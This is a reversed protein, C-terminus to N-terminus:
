LTKFSVYKVVGKSDKEIKDVKYGEAPNCYFVTKGTKRDYRYGADGGVGTVVRGTGVFGKELKIIRHPKAASSPNSASNEITYTTVKPALYNSSDENVTVTLTYSGEPISISEFIGKTTTNESLTTAGIKLTIGTADEGTIAKGVENQLAVHVPCLKTITVTKELTRVVKIESANQEVTYAAGDPPTVTLTYTGESINKAPEFSESSAKYTLPIADETGKQLEVTMNDAGTIENGFSDKLKIYVPYTKHLSCENVTEGDVTLNTWQTQSLASGHLVIKLNYDTGEALATNSKFAQKTTDYSWLTSVVSGDKSLTFTMNAADTMIEDADDKLQVYIPFLKTLTVTKAEGDVEVPFESQALTNGTWTVSLTYSGGPIVSNSTFTAGNKTWANSAVKTTGASDKLTLSIGTTNSIAGDKDHLEVVANCNNVIEVTDMSGNVPIERAYTVNDETTELWAKCGAFSTASARIENATFTTSGDIKQSYIWDDTGDNGQIYLYEDGTGESSKTVTVKRGSTTETAKIKAGKTPEAVRLYVGDSLASSSQPQAASAFIVSSLNLACAPVCRNSYIVTHNDVYNGTYAGLASHSNSAYPSRLWFWRGNSYAITYPSDTAGTEAVLGVKLGNNVADNGTKAPEGSTDVTNAGVTFFHKEAAQGNSYQGAGLYLKSTTSYFKDNKKDWTWVTTPKMLAQEATSFRTTDDQYEKIEKWIDSGGFHNAFVRTTGAEPTFDQYTCGWDLENDPNAPDRNYAAKNYNQASSDGTLTLSEYKAQPLFPMGGIAKNSGGTSSILETDSMPQLIDCLLVLGGTTSDYGAIYWGQDAAAAGSGLAISGSSTTRTGTVKNFNPNKGFYVKQVTKGTFLGFKTDTTELASKPIFKTESPTTAARVGLNLQTLLMTAALSSSVVGELATKFLKKTNVM